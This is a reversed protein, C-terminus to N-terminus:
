DLRATWRIDYTRVSARGNDVTSYDAEAGLCVLTLLGDVGLQNSKHDAFWGEIEAGIEDAREDATYVDEGVVRVLVNLDFHGTENRTNRGSRLAAPPTEWRSRGTYVHERALGAFDYAYAVLTHREAADTGNFGSRQAFHEALADTVAKRLPVGISARAM